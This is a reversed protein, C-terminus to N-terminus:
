RQMELIANDEAVAPPVLPNSDPKKMLAVSGPQVLRSKGSIIKVKYRRLISGHTPEFPNPAANKPLHCGDIRPSAPQVLSLKVAQASKSKRPGIVGTSAAGAVGGSGTPVTVKRNVSMTPLVASHSACRSAIRMENARWSASSRRHM